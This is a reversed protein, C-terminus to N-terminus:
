WLARHHEVVGLGHALAIPGACMVMPRRSTLEGGLPPSDHFFAREYGLSEAIRAHEHSQPSTAFACSLTLSM